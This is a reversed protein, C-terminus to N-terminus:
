ASVDSVMPLRIKVGDGLERGVEVCAGIIQEAQRGALRGIAAERRFLLADQRFVPLDRGGYLGQEKADEMCECGHFFRRDSPHGFCLPCAWKLEGLGESMLPKCMKSRRACNRLLKKGSTRTRMNNKTKYSLFACPAEHMQRRGAGAQM